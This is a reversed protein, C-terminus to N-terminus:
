VGGLARGLLGGPWRGPPASPPPPPLAVARRAPRSTSVPKAPEAPPPQVLVQTLYLEGSASYAGGVAGTRATPELLNDRHGPSTMFGHHMEGPGGARGVNEFARWTVLGVRAIRQPLTTGDSGVHSVLAHAALDASHMRAMHQATADWSIPALGLRRRERNLLEFSRQEAEVLTSAPPGVDGFAASWRPDSPNCVDVVSAFLGGTSTVELDLAEGRCPVEVRVEGGVRQSRLRRSQQATVAFAAPESGSPWLATVVARAGAREVHLPLRPPEAAVLAAVMGAPGRRVALGYGELPAASVLERVAPALSAYLPSLAAVPLAGQDVPAAALEAAGPVVWAAIVHPTVGSRLAEVMAARVASESVVGDAAASWAAADAVRDLAAVHPPGAEGLGGGEDRLAARLAAAAARASVVLAASAGRPGHSAGAPGPSAAARWAGVPQAGPARRGLAACGGLQTAALLSAVLGLARPAAYM